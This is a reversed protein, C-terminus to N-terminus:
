AGFRDPPQDRRRLGLSESLSGGGDAERAHDVTKIVRRLLSTLLAGRAIWKFARAPRLIFLAAVAATLVLPRATAARLLGIGRDIGEVSGRLNAGQASVRDRLRASRAILEARREALQNQRRSL